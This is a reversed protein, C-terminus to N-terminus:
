LSRLSGENCVKRPAALPLDRVARLGWALMLLYNCPVDKDPQLLFVQSIKAKVGDLLVKREYFFICRVDNSRSICVGKPLPTKLYM